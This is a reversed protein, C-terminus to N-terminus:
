NPVVYAELSKTFYDMAVLIYCNRVKSRPFSGLDDPHTVHQMPAGVLYLQLPARSQQSPGKTAMSADCCNM